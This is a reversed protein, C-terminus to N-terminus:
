QNRAMSFFINTFCHSFQLTLQLLSPVTYILITNVPVRRVRTGQQRGRLSNDHRRRESASDECRAPSRLLHGACHKYSLLWMTPQASTDSRESYESIIFHNCPQHPPEHINIDDCWIFGVPWRWQVLRMLLDGRWYLIYLIGFLNLKKWWNVWLSLHSPRLSIKLM